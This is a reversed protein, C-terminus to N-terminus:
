LANQYISIADQLKVERVNNKLLRQILLAERAMKPIDDISVGLGSLNATMGCNEIFKKILDIGQKAAAKKHLSLDGGMAMGISAYRDLAYDLNFELVFPLLLANSLGHPIKFNTGLPYALAHVAATNVPGLCLGGYYAGLAVYTRAELDKGDAIARGLNQSILRIGELAYLDVVPHANVNAYAEICHTLADLGTYATIDSPLSSLLDPEIYVADPMLVSSIIGKKSNDTPDILIANPSSESGAGSTTPICILPISREKIIGDGVFSQVPEKADMLSAVLKALDLVSGGGVGIVADTKHKRAIAVVRNFDDFSPEGGTTIEIKVDIDVFPSFISKLKAAVFPDALVFLRRLHSKKLSTILIELAGAGLVLKPPQNLILIKM